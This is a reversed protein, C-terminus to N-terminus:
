DARALPITFGICAGTTPGNPEVAITGKHSEVALKCFALGLGSGKGGQEPKRGEIQEFENFIRERMEPPIGPGTDCVLVRVMDPTDARQDATVMINGGGPTFRVANHLLNTIVRTILRVDVRVSDLQEPVRIEFKLNAEQFSAALTKYANEALETISVAETSLIMQGRRMKAIDLLTDVLAMLQEASERAVLMTPTLTETLPIDGPDRVLEEALVMSSIIAGLPGRLDHLLMRMLLERYAALSKEESIDRLSLLRGIIEGQTDRVPSGVEKIYIPKPQNDIVYERTIIRMPEARLIRAMNVLADQGVAGTETGDTTVNQYLTEAFPKNIYESLELGLIEEASLNADQLRGARDLLIIGDRTADLIARMRDHNARIETNLITNELHNSVQYALLEVTNQDRQTFHRTQSFMVCLVESIYGRREIPIAIISEYNTHRGAGLNYFPSDYVSSISLTERKKTVETILEDPIPPVDEIYQDNIFVAGRVIEYTHTNSRYTYIASGNGALMKMAIQLLVKYVADPTKSEAVQIALERLNTLVDIQNQREQLLTANQISIVAHGALSKIFSIQEDTFFNLQTSEINLVGIVEDQTKLPVALSSLYTHEASPLYYDVSRNDHVVILEGRQVVAGIVGSDRARTIEGQYIEGQHHSQYQIHFQNNPAPLALMALEAQTAQIAAELVNDIIQKPDLSRSIQQAIEEIFALQALRQILANETLTYIQANHIQAAIQNTAVEILRRENDSLNDENRHGLAIFGIVDYNIVMPMITMRSLQDAEMMECLPASLTGQINFTHLSTLLKESLKGLEPIHMLSIEDNVIHEEMRRTHLKIQQREMDFLGIQIWPVELMHQLLQTVDDIVRKLSLDSSSIRSLHVLQAQESAYHELVELLEANDLAAALQNALMYLLSLDVEQYPHPQDHFVFLYGIAALGSRLPIVALTRFGGIQAQRRIIDNPHQTADAIILHSDTNAITLLDDTITQEDNFGYFQVFGSALQETTTTLAIAAKNAQMITVAEECAAQLAADQNLNFMVDQMSQNIIALKSAIAVTQDHLQRSRLILSIPNAISELVMRISEGAPRDDSDYGALLVGSTGSEGKLLMGQIHAPKMPKYPHLNTVSLPIAPEVKGQIMQSIHDDGVPHEAWNQVEDHHIVFPYSIQGTQAHYEAIIFWDSLLIPQLDQYLKEFIHEQTDAQIIEPNLSKLIHHTWGTSLQHPLPATSQGQNLILGVLVLYLSFGILNANLLVFPAALPLMLILAIQGWIAYHEWPPVPAKLPHYLRHMVIFVVYGVGSGIVATVITPLSYIDLPQDFGMVVHTIMTMILSTGLISIQELVQTWNNRQDQYYQYLGFITSSIILLWLSVVIGLTYYVILLVLLRNAFQQITLQSVDTLLYLTLCLGCLLWWLSSLNSTWILETLAVAVSIPLLAILHIPHIRAFSQDDVIKDVKRM